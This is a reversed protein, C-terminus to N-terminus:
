QGERRSRLMTSPMSQMEILTEDRLPVFIEAKCYSQLWRNSCHQSKCMHMERDFIGTDANSDVLRQFISSYFLFTPIIPMALSCPVMGTVSELEFQCVEAM